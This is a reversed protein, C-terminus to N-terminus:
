RLVNVGTVISSKFTLEMGGERRRVMLTDFVSLFSFEEKTRRRWDGGCGGAVSSGMRLRAVLRQAMWVTPAKVSGKCNM